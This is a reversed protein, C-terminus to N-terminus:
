HEMLSTNMSVVGAYVKYIRKMQQEIQLQRHIYTYIQVDDLIIFNYKVLKVNTMM